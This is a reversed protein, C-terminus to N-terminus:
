FVSNPTHELNWLHLISVPRGGFDDPDGAEALFVSNIDWEVGSARGESRRLLSLLSEKTLDARGQASGPQRIALMASFSDLLERLTPTQSYKKMRSGHDGHLVVRSLEFVGLRQLASFFEDLQRALFTSQGCYLRYDRSYEPERHWERFPRVNGVSDLVYPYHPHLLHVFFLTPRKARLIDQLLVQPWFKRVSLPGIRTALVLNPLYKNILLRTPLDLLFYWTFIHRARDSWSATTALLASLDHSDYERVRSYRYRPLDFRIYDSQYVALDLGRAAARAFLMNGALRNGELKYQGKPRLLQDNLISPLSKWTEDYNSFANPYVTFGHRELTARWNDAADACEQILPPFGAIGIQEDLVLHITHRLHLAVAATPGGPSGAAVALWVEAALMGGLMLSMLYPLRERLVAASGLMLFALGGFILVWPTTPAAEAVVSTASFYAAWLSLVGFFVPKGGPLRSLAFCPFAFLLLIALVEPRWLEYHSHILLRLLPIALVMYFALFGKLRSDGPSVCSRSTGVIIPEDM